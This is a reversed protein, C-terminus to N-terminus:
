PQQGRQQDVRRARSLPPNRRAERAPQGVEPENDQGSGSMNRPATLALFDQDYDPCIVFDDLGAGSTKGM